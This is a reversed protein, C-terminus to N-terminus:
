IAQSITQKSRYSQRVEYSLLYRMPKTFRLDRTLIRWPSKNMNLTIFKQFDLKKYESKMNEVKKAHM